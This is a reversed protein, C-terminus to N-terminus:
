IHIVHFADAALFWLPFFVPVVQDSTNEYPGNIIPVCQCLQSVGPFGCFEFMLLIQGHIITGQVQDNHYTDIWARRSSAKVDM